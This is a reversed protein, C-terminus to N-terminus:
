EYPGIHPDSPIYYIWIYVNAPLGNPTNYSFYSKLPEVALIDVQMRDCGPCEDRTNVMIEKPDINADPIQIYIYQDPGMPISSNRSVAATTVQDPARDNYPVVCQTSSAYPPSCSRSNKEWRGTYKNYNWTVGNLKVSGQMRLYGQNPLDNADNIDSNIM